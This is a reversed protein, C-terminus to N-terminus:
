RTAPQGRVPAPAEIPAAHGSQIPASGPALWRQGWLPVAQQLFHATGRARVPALGLHQWARQLEQLPRDLDLAAAGTQKSLKEGSPGTVVPVHLYRPTPLGLLRQLLIQRPTNDLLDAGRVVDTVGQRADDVVVALQYSWLGDARRVVFDGVEDQLRQEFAGCARDHFGVPEAAVRVRLAQPGRGAPGNRCSGPYVGPALGQRRAAMEVATRSCTCGYVQGQAQLRALASEYLDTRTSQYVPPEDAMLGLRALAALQAAVAGPQARLPDIDEIRVLWRGGHARADLWSALAAVLSGLHLPGTPSPAFRGIYRKSSM